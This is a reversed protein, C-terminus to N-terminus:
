STPSPKVLKLAAHPLFRWGGPHHLLRLYWRSAARWEGAKASAKFAGWCAPALRAAFMSRVDQPLELELIRRLAQEEGVVYSLSKSESGPTEENYIVTPEEVFALRTMSALRVALYTCELYRPMGDFLSTPVGESRCLWSGPLLWNGDALALLPDAAVARIDDLNLRDGKRGRRIGNTIVAGCDANGRLADVRLALARPMLEDDDDLEAFWLQDVLARGAALAGPLDAGDLVLVSVNPLAAVEEVLAPEVDPGNFVVIPRARVDAQALVGALARRLLPARQRTGLTPMIVAVEPLDM